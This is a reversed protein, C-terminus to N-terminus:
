NAPYFCLFLQYIHPFPFTFNKLNCSPLRPIGVAISSLHLDILHTIRFNSKNSDQSGRVTGSRQVHQIMFWTSRTKRLLNYLFILSFLQWSTLTSPSMSYKHPSNLFAFSLFLPMEPSFILNFFLSFALSLCYTFAFVTSYSHRLSLLLSQSSSCLLTSPAGPFLGPLTPSASARRSRYFPIKTTTLGATPDSEKHGRPGYGVPSMQRHSEGPLFVPTPQWKREQSYYNIYFM